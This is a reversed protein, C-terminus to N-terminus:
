GVAGLLLILEINQVIGGGAKGTAFKAWNKLWNQQTSLTSTM